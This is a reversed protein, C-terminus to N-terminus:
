EPNEKTSDEKHEIKKWYKGFDFQPSNDGDHCTICHQKAADGDLPLRILRRLKEQLTKNSGSEAAIHKEGQGHCSECGVSVLQPTQKASLFGHQYPLLQRTNWGTVHCGICEPDFQRPPVAANLSEWAQHHKSKKWVAFSKEHCDACKAAGTFAGLTATRSDPIPRIGLGPLGTRELQEQYLRMLKTVTESSKFRSDFPIREYRMPMKESDYLGVAVAFRGKEGTEIIVSQGATKAELPPEAPTNGPLIFDFKGAFEKIINEIEDKSGFVTLVKKNCKEYDPNQLVEKLKAAADATKIDSNPTDDKQFEATLSKGLVSVVGFKMGNKELIRYPPIFDPSFALVAANASTYRKTVGPTDVSYLVLTETSFLLENNGIGAAGYKMQRYAEDIVFNYKLEEQKGSGKNLNGADIALVDWNKKKLELFFTHRRSLGGKMNELGACGCPEAYGNLSGTFVLLVKPKEWGDFLAQASSTQVSDTDARLPNLLAFLFVVFLAFRM